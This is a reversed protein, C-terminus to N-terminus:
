IFRRKLDFIIETKDASASVFTESYSGINGIQLLVTGQKYWGDQEIIKEGRNGGIICLYFLINQEIM